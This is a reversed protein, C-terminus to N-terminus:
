DKGLIRRLVGIPTIVIFFVVSLIVRTNVWGLVHGLLMWGKHVWFLSKPYVIASILLVGGVLVSWWRPDVRHVVVPWAGLLVFIGGVILGFSRLEKKPTDAQM